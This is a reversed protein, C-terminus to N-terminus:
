KRDKPITGAIWEKVESEFANSLQMQKTAHDLMAFVRIQYGSDNYRHAIVDDNQVVDIYGLLRLKAKAKVYKDSVMSAIWLMENNDLKVRFYPIDNYGSQIEVVEADFAITQGIHKKIKSQIVLLSKGDFNTPCPKQAVLTYSGVILFLFTFILRM